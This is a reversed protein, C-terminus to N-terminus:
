SASGVFLVGGTTPIHDAAVVEIQRFFVRTVVRLFWTLIRYVV